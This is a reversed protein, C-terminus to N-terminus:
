RFPKYNVQTSISFMEKDGKSDGFSVIQAYEELNLVKKIRNVKEIGKCNKGLFKGTCISNEYNLKTCILQLNHKEAFPQLWFQLSASVIILDSNSKKVKKIFELAKPRLISDIYNEVYLNGLKMIEEQTKGKLFISVLKEKVVGKDSNTIGFFLLVPFNLLMKILVSFAGFTKFLFDFLSDKHSITGDFDFLYLTRNM